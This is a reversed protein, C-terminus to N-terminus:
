TSSTARSPRWSQTSASRIAFVTSAGLPQVAITRVPAPPQGAVADYRFGNSPLPPGQYAVGNIVDIPLTPTIFGLPEGAETLVVGCDVPEKNGEVAFAAVPTALLLAALASKPPPGTIIRAIVGQERVETHAVKGGTENRRYGAIRVKTGEAPAAKAARLPSPLDGRPATLFWGGRLPRDSLM